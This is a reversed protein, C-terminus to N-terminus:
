HGVQSGHDVDITTKKKGKKLFNNDKESKFKGWSPECTCIICGVSAELGVVHQNEKSCSPQMEQYESDGTSIALGTIQCDPRVTFGAIVSRTLM